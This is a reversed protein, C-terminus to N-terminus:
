KVGIYLTEKKRCFENKKFPFYNVETDMLVKALFNRYRLKDTSTLNSPKFIAYLYHYKFNKEIVKRHIHKM